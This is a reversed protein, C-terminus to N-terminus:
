RGFSIIHDGESLGSLIETSTGDSIGTTVTREASTGDNAVLVVTADGRRVIASTPVLLADHTTATAISINAHMGDAIAKDTAALAITVKYGGGAGQSLAADITAVTGSFATNTGYADLTISAASAPKIKAIDAESAYADISYGNSVITSVPVNPIAIEGVHADQLAITGSFPARIEAKAMQADIGDIAAQARAVAAAEIAKSGENPIMAQAAILASLAGNVSGRATSIKGKLADVSPQYSLDTVSFSDTVLAIENLFQRVQDLNAKSLAAFAIPDTSATALAAQWSSLTAGIASRETNLKIKEDYSKADFVLTTGNNQITVGFKPSSEPNTYFADAYNRVAEDATSYANQAANLLASQSRDFGTDSGSHMDALKAEEISLAAVAQLRSAELDSLDLSAILAGQSVYEGAAHYVAAIRGSTAFSLDSHSKSVVTGSLATSEVIDGRRVLIDSQVSPSKLHAYAYVGASVLVVASIGIAVIPNKLFAAIKKKM